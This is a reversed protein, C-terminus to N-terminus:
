FNMAIGLGYPGATFNFSVPQQVAKANYIDVSERIKNNGIGKFVYSLISNGIFGGLHVMKGVDNGDKYSLYAFLINVYSIGEFVGGITKLTSGSKYASLAVPYDSLSVKANASSLISNDMLVNGSKYTLFKVPRVKSQTSTIPQATTAAPKTVVPSVATDSPAINENFVDKSGNEYKIMFVNKKEISYVPGNPNDAKKYKIADIGVESVMGSIEDGAKLIIIDTAFLNAFLFFFFLFVSIVKSPTKM